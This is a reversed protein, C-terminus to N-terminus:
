PLIGRRRAEAEIQERTLGQARPPLTAAPRQDQQQDPNWGARQAATRLISKLEEAAQRYEAESQGTQQLRSMANTAKNGEVETIQGGGKLSEFAQLFQRGGLQELRAQFGAADTAPIPMGLKAAMGSPSPVPVGLATKGTDPIGVVDAMGPHNILDDVLRMSYTADDIAKQDMPMPAPTRTVTAGPLNTRQGMGMQPGEQVNEATMPKVGSPNGGQPFQGAIGGTEPADAMMPPQQGEFLPPRFASMDPSVTTMAGTKPDITVKPQAMQSYAARYEPSRPDAGLLTNLYQAEMGNGQFPTQPKEPGQYSVIQGTAANRQGVGGRGYPNQVTEVRNRAEWTKQDLERDRLKDALSQRRNAADQMQDFQIEMGMPATDPNGMLAQTMAGMSGPQMQTGAPITGVTKGSADLKEVADPATWGSAAKLAQAMTNQSELARATQDTERRKSDRVSEGLLYGSLLQQAVHGLGGLTTGNNLNPRAIMMAPAYRNRRTLRDGPLGGSLMDFYRGM